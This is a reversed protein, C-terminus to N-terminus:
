EATAGSVKVAEGWKRIEEAVFRDFEAAAM